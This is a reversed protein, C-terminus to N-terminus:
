IHRDNEEEDVFVEHNDNESNAMWAFVSKIAGLIVVLVTFLGVIRRITKFM